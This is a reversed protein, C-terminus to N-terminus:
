WSLKSTQIGKGGYAIAGSLSKWLEPYNAYDAYHLCNYTEDSAFIDAIEEKPPFVNLWKTPLGNLTKYSMMLGIHLKRNSGQPLHTNFVRLMSQVQEFSSFDVIGIYPNIMVGGTLSASM